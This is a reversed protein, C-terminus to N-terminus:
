RSSAFKRMQKISQWEDGPGDFILSHPGSFGAAKCLDLCKGFDGEDLLGAQSFSAKAHTSESRAVIQPLDDYKRPSPWNGFDALLGVKGECLDLLECVQKPSHLLAHWNEPVVRVGYPESREALELLGAASLKIAVGRDDPKSDGAIIRVRSFGCAGAVDIWKGIEEIQRRREGPDVHTIDGFDILLTFLAVGANKAHEKLESSFDNGMSPFHFHCVELLDIGVEKSERPVDLISVDGPGWTPESTRGAPTEKYQLGLRRHLSWTSVAYKNRGAEMHHQEQM